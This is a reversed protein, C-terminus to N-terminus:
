KFVEKIKEFVEEVNKISEIYLNRELINRTKRKIVLTGIKFLEQAKNQTYSIEEIESFPIELHKKRFRGRVLVLKTRYLTCTEKQIRLKQKILYGIGVIAFVIGVSLAYMWYQNFDSALLVGVLFVAVAIEEIHSFIEYGLVFSRKFTYVVSKDNRLEQEKLLKNMCNNCLEGDKKLEVGCIKCNM